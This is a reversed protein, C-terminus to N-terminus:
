LSSTVFYTSLRNDVNEATEFFHSIKLLNLFFISFRTKFLRYRLKGKDLQSFSSISIFIFKFFFDFVFVLKFFIAKHRSRVESRAICPTM